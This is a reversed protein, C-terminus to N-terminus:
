RPWQLNKPVRFLVISVQMVGRPSPDLLVTSFASPNAVSQSFPSM